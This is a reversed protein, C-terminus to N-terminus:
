ILHGDIIYNKTDVPETEKLYMSAGDLLANFIPYTMKVFNSNLLRGLRDSLVDPKSLRSKVDNINHEDLTFESSGVEDIFKKLTGSPNTDTSIKEHLSVLFRSTFGPFEQETKQKYKNFQKYGSQRFVIQKMIIKG